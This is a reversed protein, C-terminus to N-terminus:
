QVAGMGAGGRGVLGPSRCPLALASAHAVVLPDLCPHARAGGATPSPWHAAPGVALWQDLASPRDAGRSVASRALDALASRRHHPNGAAGACALGVGDGVPHASHAVSGCASQQDPRLPPGLRLPTVALAPDLGPGGPSRVLCPRSPAAVGAWPHLAM